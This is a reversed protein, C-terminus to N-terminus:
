NDRHFMSETIQSQLYAKVHGDCFMLNAYGHEIMRNNTKNLTYSNDVHRFDFGGPDGPYFVGSYTGGDPWSSPADIEATETKSGDANLNGADAFAVITSPHTLTSDKAATGYSCDPLDYWQLSSSANYPVIAPDGGVVNGNYGYGNGSGLGHPASFSPCKTVQRSRMYPQLLGKSNDVVGGIQTAFWFQNNTCGTDDVSYRYPMWGEDNDQVYQLASIGFQRLNSACSIQRAKERASAFVPFLIAALISIIAIVVLLEILTFGRRRRTISFRVASPQSATALTHRTLPIPGRQRDRAPLSCCRYSRQQTM